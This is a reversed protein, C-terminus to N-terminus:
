GCRFLTVRGNPDCKALCQTYFAVFFAIEPTDLIRQFQGGLHISMDGAETFCRQQAPDVGFCVIKGVRDGSRCCVSEAFKRGLVAEHQTDAEALLISIFEVVRRHEDVGLTM